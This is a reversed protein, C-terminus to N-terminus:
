KVREKATAKAVNIQTMTIEHLLAADDSKGSSKSDGAEDKAEDGDGEAARGKIDTTGTGIGAGLLVPSVEYVTLRRLYNVDQGDFVGPEGELIDFGYSWEQLEGLNKVTQYTEKGAITDLFFRGDVWAKEDDQHIVGRGVPVDEWRHGWYAIRVAQGDTFAGPLTVDGDHDIVNFRSFVARFDGPEGDGEAKLEIPAQFSKKKMSARWSKEPRVIDSEAFWDDIYGHWEDPRGAAICRRHAEAQEVELFVIEAGLRESLTTLEAQSRTSTIVWAPQQKRAFLEALVADRAALVYPRISALHQHDGQGSLAGHLTDYDYILDGRQANARVYSSKGACPAGAVVFRSM